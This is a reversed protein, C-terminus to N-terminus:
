TKKNFSTIFELYYIKLYKYTNYAYKIYYKKLM